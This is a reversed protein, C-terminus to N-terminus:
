EGCYEAIARPIEGILDGAIMGRDTQRDRNWLEAARAHIHVAAASAAFAEDLHTVDACLATLMGTLVDGSGATALLPEAARCVWRRGDPHAIITHPGKLVVIAGTKEAADRAVGFRDGEIARSSSGMLRALEGAHPTLIRTTPARSLDGHRGAFHSIADADVVVPGDFGLVVADVVRRADGDLGLGPGIGVAARKLLAEALSADLRRRDLRATMIEPQRGEIRDAAEPWAAITALGAGTRLAATAALQVAGSKGLSGAVLLVSGARYKHASKARVGLFEAVDRDDIMRATQGVVDVIGDDVIGLGVCEVEGAYDLGAGQMLGPKHHAFTITAAAQVAVGLVSGDNADIGTPIDLAVCPCPAENLCSVVDRWIGELPRSLGTGFLADVSLAAGALAERLAGLDGAPEHVAVGLGLLADLNARADGTVRDRAGILFVQVNRGRALLQRAVVFGDGGNNGQGCVIVTAGRSEAAVLMREIVEAAGRGANEMLVLGPVHCQGIAHADYARIQERTMVFRKM